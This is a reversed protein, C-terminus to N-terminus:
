HAAPVKEIGTAWRNRLLHDRLGMILLKPGVATQHM